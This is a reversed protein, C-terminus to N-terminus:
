IEHEGGLLRDLVRAYVFVANAEAQMFESLLSEFHQMSTLGGTKAMEAKLVDSYVYSRGGFTLALCILDLRTLNELRPSM